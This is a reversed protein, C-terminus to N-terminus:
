PLRSVRLIHRRAAALKEPTLTRRFSGAHQRYTFGPETTGVFRAGLRAFGVWLLADVYDLPGALTQYPSREWFSRRFPSCSFCGVRGSLITRASVRSFSRVRGSPYRTALSVVDARDTLPAVLALAGPLLLDDADLHMVWDTASAAVATNRAQGMGNFPESVVTAATGRSRILTAAQEAEAACGGLEAIVVASPPVTQGAVSAAWEGLFRGYAGWVTTVVTIEPV